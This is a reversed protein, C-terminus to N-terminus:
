SHKEQGRSMVEITSNGLGEATHEFHYFGEDDLGLLRGGVRQNINLALIHNKWALSYLKRGGATHLQMLRLVEWVSHMARVTPLAVVIADGDLDPCRKIGLAGDTGLPYFVWDGAGFEDFPELPAGITSHVAMVRAYLLRGLDM